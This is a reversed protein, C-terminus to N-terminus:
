FLLQDENIELSDFDEDKISFVVIYYPLDKRYNVKYGSVLYEGPTVNFKNDDEQNSLLNDSISIIGSKVSVHMIDTASDTFNYEHRKLLPLNSNVLRVVVKITMDGNFNIIAIKFKNIYEANSIYKKSRIPIEIENDKIVLMASEMQVSFSSERIIEFQIDNALQKFLKSKM